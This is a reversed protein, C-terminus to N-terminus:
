SEPGDLCTLCSVVTDTLKKGVHLPLKEEVIAVLKKKIGFARQRQDTIALLGDVNLEDHLICEGAPVNEKIFSIWLCMELLCVGLSYIDHQMVYEMAPDYGQRLPHRYFVREPFGDRALSTAGQVMRFKEFGVLCLLKTPSEEHEFLLIIEPRINKHVFGTTHLYFVSAALHRAMELKVNLSPQSHRLLNRLSQPPCRLGKPIEFVLDFALIKASEKSKNIVGCCRLLGFTFPDMRYLAKCLSQVDRNTGGTDAPLYVTMADVIASNDNDEFQAIAVSSDIIPVRTGLFDRSSIDRSPQDARATLDQAAKRLVGLAEIMSENTGSNTELYRDIEERAVRSLLYWSPDFLYHWDILEVVSLKLSEKASLFFKVRNIKGKMKLIDSLSTAHHENKIIGDIVRVSKQLKINLESLLLQQNQQLIPDLIHWVKRLLQM